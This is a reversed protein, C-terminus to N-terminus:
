DTYWNLLIAALLASRQPLSDIILYERESHMGGGLGGLGDLVPVGLPAVFNADSGGGTGGEVLHIGFSDAIRQAKQFTAAMLEDRPMPPRNLGGTVQVSTGQIVPQISKMERDIREAEDLSLVRLDVIAKAENPVVNSATGGQIMGVNLTTGKGYNTFKQIELVHYALEEIANRGQEHEGGAHSARGQVQVEYEGVGKRWTKLGGNSLGPELCLVLDKGRALSEILPRSTESGIEEDSTFLATIPPLALNGSGQLVKIVGALIAIGAKMDTVGPGYLRGNEQFCPQHKLTGVPFVTDMHCLILIGTEETEGGWRALIHNGTIEQRNITIAADLARMQEAVYVGMRDVAAKQTSPSEIEVMQRLISVMDEIHKSFDNLSIM